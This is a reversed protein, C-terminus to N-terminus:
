GAGSEKPDILGFLFFVFGGLGLAIPLFWVSAPTDIKATARPAARDYIVTVEDGPAYNFIFGGAPFSIADGSVPTFQIEPHSGGANLHVVVGAAKDAYRVFARIHLTVPVAAILLGAGVLLFLARRLKRAAASLPAHGPALPM